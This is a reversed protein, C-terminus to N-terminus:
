YMVAFAVVLVLGLIKLIMKTPPEVMNSSLFLAAILPASLSSFLTLLVFRTSGYHRINSSVDKYEEEPNGRTVKNVM